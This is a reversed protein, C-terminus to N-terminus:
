GTGFATTQCVEGDTINGAGGRRPPQSTKKKKRVPPTAESLWRSIDQVGGTYFRFVLEVLEMSKTWCKLETYSRVKAMM